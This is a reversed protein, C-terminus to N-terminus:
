EGTIGRLLQRERDTAIALAAELYKIFAQRLEHRHPPAAGPRQLDRTHELVLALIEAPQDDLVDFSHRLGEIVLAAMRVNRDRLAETIEEYEMAKM